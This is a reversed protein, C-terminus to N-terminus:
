PAVRWPYKRRLWWQERLIQAFPIRQRDLRVILLGDGFRVVEGAVDVSAGSRFRVTGGMRDGVQVTVDAPVPGLEVRVGTESCDSVLGHLAGSAFQPRDVVPYEVRYYQRRNEVEQPRPPTPSDSM